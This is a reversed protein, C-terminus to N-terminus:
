SHRRPRSPQQRVPLAPVAVPDEGIPLDTLPQGPLPLGAPAKRAAMARLMHLAAAQDERGLQAMLHAAESGANTPAMGEYLADLPVGFADAIAAANDADPTRPDNDDAWRKATSAAVGVAKALRFPTDEMKEALLRRLAAKSWKRPM